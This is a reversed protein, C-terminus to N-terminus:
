AFFLCNWKSGTKIEDLISSIDYKFIKEDIVASGYMM